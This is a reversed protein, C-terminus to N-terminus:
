LVDALLQLARTAAERQRDARSTSKLQFRKDALVSTESTGENTERQCVAVFIVGDNEPANPGFHGTIGLAIDAEMTRQLVGSAIEKTTAASEASHNELTSEGVGLWDIKTQERYVVASGCLYGSIGPVLGLSAAILGSTCSEAFVVRLDRKKLIVGVNEAVQELESM